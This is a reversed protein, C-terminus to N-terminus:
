HCDSDSHLERVWSQVWVLINDVWGSPSFLDFCGAMLQSHWFCVLNLDWFYDWALNELFFHLRVCLNCLELYLVLLAEPTVIFDRVVRLSHWIYKYDMKTSVIVFAFWMFYIFDLKLMFFRLQWQIKIAKRKM